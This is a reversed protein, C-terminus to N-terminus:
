LYVLPGGDPHKAVRVNCQYVDSLLTESMITAPPGDALIKGNSLVIVRHAHRAALNLDHTAAIVSTKHQAEQAACRMVMDAHGLDLADTPEDLLLVTARQALTRAIAVRRREGGSLSGVIRDAIHEIEMRQMSRQVTDGREAEGLGSTHTGFGVVVSVAFPVEVNDADSLFARTRARAAPSLSAPTEGAIKVEGDFDAHDGAIARLLTTKGSGNPGVICVFEGSEIDFNVRQLVVKSDLSVSLGAVHVGNM